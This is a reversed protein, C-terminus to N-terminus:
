LCGGAPLRLFSDRAVAAGTRKWRKRLRPVDRHIQRGPSPGRLAGDSENSPSTGANGHLTLGWSTVDGCFQLEIGIDSVCLDISSTDSTVLRCFPETFHRLLEVTTSARTSQEVVQGDAAERFLVEVSKWELVELGRCCCRRTQCTRHMLDGYVALAPDM